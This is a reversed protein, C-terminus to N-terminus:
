RARRRRRRAERFVKKFRAAVGSAPRPAPCAPRRAIARMHTASLHRHSCSFVAAFFVALRGRRRRPLRAAVRRGAAVRDCSTLFSNLCYSLDSGASASPGSGPAPRVSRCCASPARSSRPLSRRDPRARLRRRRRGSPRPRPRARTPSPGSRASGPWPGVVLEVVGLHRHEALVDVVVDFLFFALVDGFAPSGSPGPLAAPLSASRLASSSPSSFRLRRVAPIPYSPNDQGPRTPEAPHHDVPILSRLSGRKDVSADVSDRKRGASARAPNASSSGALQALPALGQLASFLLKARPEDCRPNPRRPADADRVSASTPCRPHRPHPVGNAKASM